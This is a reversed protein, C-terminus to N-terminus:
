ALYFHEFREQNKVFFRFYNIWLQEKFIDKYNANQLLGFYIAIRPLMGHQACRKLQHYESVAKEILFLAFLTDLASFGMGIKECHLMLCQKLTKSYPTSDFFSYEFAQIFGRLGSQKRSQTFYTALFYILDHLPLGAYKSDTWDIVRIKTEIQMQPILINQRCFDGHQVYGGNATVLDLKNSVKDLYNQEELSLKYIALFEGIMRQTNQKLMSPSATAGGRNGGHLSALWDSALKWNAIADTLEPEGSRLMFVNMPTGDLISQVLVWVGDVEDCFLVMPTSVSINNRTQLYDLVKSENLFKETEKSHRLIKVAFIPPNRRNDAFALFTTTGGEISGPIGLYYIDGPKDIELHLNDWVILLRRTLEPLM